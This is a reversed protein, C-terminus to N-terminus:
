SRKQLPNTQAKPNDPPWSGTQVKSWDPVCTMIEGFLDSLLSGAAAALDASNEATAPGIQVKLYFAYDNKLDFALSRVEEASQAIGGNAIFFYGAFTRKGDPTAYETVRLVPPHGPAVGAPLHVRRGGGATSYENSLRVTYLPTPAFPNQDDPEALWAETSLPMPELWPGGVLSLGAGILCREPVHPVTDIMGTYYALHLSLVRPQTGATPHKEAFNRTVYNETGLMEVSEPPEIVDQGVQKWAATQTPIARLVRAVGGVPEPYIPKKQLYLKFHHLAASMGAASTAMVAFAVLFGPNALARWNM